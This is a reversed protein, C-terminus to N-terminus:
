DDHRRPRHLLELEAVHVAPRSDPPHRTKTAQKPHRGRESEGPDGFHRPRDVNASQRCEGPPRVQDDDELQRHEARDERGDDCKEHGSAEAPAGAEVIGGYGVSLNKDADRIWRLFADAMELGREARYVSRLDLGELGLAAFEKANRPGINPTGIFCSNEFARAPM